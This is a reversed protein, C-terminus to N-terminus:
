SDLEVIKIEVRQNKSRGISTKNSYIPKRKGYGKYKIRNAAIGKEIFYDAVAKARKESLQDCYTPDCLGNTHGGIEVMVDKHLDLFLFVNNLEGYSIEKIRTEDIDFYLKDIRIIQGQKLQSKTYGGIKVTKPENSPPDKSENMSSGDNEDVINFPPDPENKVIKVPSPEVEPPNVAVPDEVPDEQDDCPISKIISANDVLINGNYPFLTPTKYFAELVMHTYDGQPELKFTHKIWRPSTVLSSEGLLYEKNCYDYGGYIRLKAPTIYNAQKGTIQSPSVYLESRSMYISFEYCSGAELPESLKQSVAEWTDNDRVVLGLYTDGDIAAKNVSFGSPQVDVPSEGPFGCDIWGRPPHSHRPIDEFSANNLFIEKEQAYITVGGLVLLFILYFRM